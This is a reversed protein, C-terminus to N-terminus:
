KKGGNMLTNLLTFEWLNHFPLLYKGNRLITKNLTPNMQGGNRIMNGLQGVGAKSIDALANVDSASPGLLGDMAKQGYYETNAGRLEDIIGGAVRTWLGFVGSRKVGELMLNETSMDPTRGALKEKIVYSASGLTTMAIIGQIVNADRTQMSNIMVKSAVGQFFGTFQLVNRWGQSRQYNMSLDGMGAKPVLTDTEKKIASVMLQKAKEDKWLRLNAWNKELDGNKDVQALLKDVNTSDIGLNSLWIKEKDSLSKFNQINRILRSEAMFASVRQQSVIFPSMGSVKGFKDLIYDEVRGAKTPFSVDAGPNMIDRASAAMTRDVIVDAAKLDEIHAGITGNLVEAIAKGYGDTLTKGLGYKMVAVGSHTIATFVVQGMMQAYTLRNLFQLNADWNTRQSYRGSIIDVMDQALKLNTGKDEMLKQKLPGEQALKSEDDILGPVDELKKVGIDEMWTRLESVRAAQSLYTSGTAVIDHEVYDWIDATPIDMREKNWKVGQYLSDKGADYLTSRTTGNGIMSDIVDHAKEAAEEKTINHEKQFSDTLAKYAGPRDELIKNVNLVRTMYNPDKIHIDEPFEGTEKLWKNGAQLYKQWIGAVNKVEPIDHDNTVMTMYQAQEKFEDFSLTKASPDEKTVRTLYAKYQGTVEKNFKPVVSDVKDEIRRSVAPGKAQIGEEPTQYERIVNNEFLQDGINRITNSSSGAALVTPSKFDNTPLQVARMLKNANEQSGLYAPAAKKMSYTAGVGGYDPYKALEEPMDSVKLPAPEGKALLQSLSSTMGKQVTSAVLGIAGGLIGATMATSAMNMLHEHMDQLPKDSAAIGAENLASYSAGYLVGSAAGALTDAFMSGKLGAGAYPILNIPDIVGEALAAIKATTPSNALIEQNHSHLEINQQWQALQADTHVNSHIADATFPEYPTDKLKDVVNYSPDFDLGQQGMRFEGNETGYTGLAGYWTNEQANAKFVDTTQHAVTSTDAEVTKNKEPGEGMKFPTMAANQNDVGASINKDQVPTEIRQAVDSYSLGQAEQEDNVIPM